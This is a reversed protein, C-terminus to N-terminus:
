IEGAISQFLDSPFPCVIVCISVDPRLDSSLSRTSTTHTDQFSRTASTNNNLGMGSRPDSKGLRQWSFCGRKGEREESRDLAASIVSM